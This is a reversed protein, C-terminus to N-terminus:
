CYLSPCTAEIFLLYAEGMVEALWGVLWGTLWDTLGSAECNGDFPKIEDMWPKLTLRDVRFIGRSLKM